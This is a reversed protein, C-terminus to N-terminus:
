EVPRDEQQSPDADIKKGKINKENLKEGKGKEEGPAKDVPQRSKNSAADDTRIKEKKSGQDKM